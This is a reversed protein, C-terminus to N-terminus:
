VILLSFTNRGANSVNQPRPMIPIGNTIDKIYGLHQQINPIIIRVCEEIVLGNLENVQSVIDDPRNKGYQYYMSSMIIQLENDNQRGIKYQGNSRRYIETIIAQQIVEQNETTFYTTSVETPSHNNSIISTNLKQVGSQNQFLNYRSAGMQNPPIFLRGNYGTRGGPDNISNQPMDPRNLANDMEQQMMNVSYFNNM